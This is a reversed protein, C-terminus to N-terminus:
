VRIPDGSVNEFRNSVIVNHSSDHALYVAHLLESNLSKNVLGVFHNNEIQNYDSNVLDIGGYGPADSAAHVNGLNALLCGSVVNYGQWRAPDSRSGYLHIAGQVYGEVRLYYFRVHTPAGAAGAVTFFYGPSGQGDFFPRGAIDNIGNGY